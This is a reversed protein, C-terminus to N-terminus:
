REPLVADARHVLRVGRQEPGELRLGPHRGQRHGRRRPGADLLHQLQELHGRRRPEGPVPREYIRAIFAQSERIARFFQRKDPSNMPLALLKRTVKIGDDVYSAGLNLGALDAFPNLSVAPAVVPAEQPVVVGESSPTEVVQRGDGLPQHADDDVHPTAGAILKAM